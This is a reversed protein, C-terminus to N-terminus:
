PSNDFECFCLHCIEFQLGIECIFTSVFILLQWSAELYRIYHMM